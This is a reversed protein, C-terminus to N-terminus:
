RLLLGNVINLNKWEEMCQMVFTKWENGFPELSHLDAILPTGPGGAVEGMRLIRAPVEDECLGYQDRFRAIPKGSKKIIRSVRRFYLSPLRMQALSFILSILTLIVEGWGKTKPPPPRTPGGPAENAVQDQTRSHLIKQPLYRMLGEFDALSLEGYPDPLDMPPSSDDRRPPPTALRLNKGRPPTDDATALTASFPDLILSIFFDARIRM